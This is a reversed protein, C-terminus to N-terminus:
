EVMPWDATGYTLPRAALSEEERWAISGDAYRERKWIPVERKLRELLERSASYAASRRQSAAAIAVTVEGVGVTGLRHVIALRAGPHAADVESLIRELAALAMPRYADYDLGVVRRGDRQDRVRGVFLVTAGCGPDTVRELLGAVDIPGDTLAVSAGSANGGSVPPLLAVEAGETLHREGTIIEGDVAIALRPWLAALAPREAELAARLEGLTGHALAVDREAAGLAERASAFALVRVNV